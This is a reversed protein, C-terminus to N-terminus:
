KPTTVETISNISVILEEKLRPSGDPNADIVGVALTSYQEPESGVGCIDIFGGASIAEGRTRMEGVRIYPTHPDEHRYINHTHKFYVRLQSGHGTTVDYVLWPSNGVAWVPLDCDSM